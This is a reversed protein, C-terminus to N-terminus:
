AWISRASRKLAPVGNVLDFSSNIEPPEFAGERDGHLSIRSLSKKAPAAELHENIIRRNEELLKVASHPLVNGHPHRPQSGHKWSVFTAGQIPEIADMREPTEVGPRADLQPKDPPMPVESANLRPRRLAPRGM